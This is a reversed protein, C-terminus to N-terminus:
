EIPSLDPGVWSRRAEESMLVDRSYFRLLYDPAGCEAILEPALTGLRQTRPRGSLFRAIVAMWALTITEHYGTHNGYHHNLRQIGRRIRETAEDRGHRVQYALAVTLHMAHTWESRPLTLGEFERLAREIDDDTM